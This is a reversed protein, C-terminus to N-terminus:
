RLVFMWWIQVDSSDFSFLLCWLESYQSRDNYVETMQSMEFDIWSFFFFRVGFSSGRSFRRISGIERKKAAPDNRSREGIVQGAGGERKGARWKTAEDLGMAHTITSTAFPISSAEERVTNDSPNLPVSSFEHEKTRPHSAAPFRAPFPPFPSLLRWDIKIM